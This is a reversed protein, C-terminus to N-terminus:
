SPTHHAPTASPIAAASIWRGISSRGITRCVAVTGAPEPVYQGCGCDPDPGSRAQHPQRRELIEIDALDGTARPVGHAAMAHAGVVLFRAEARVLAALLDLFDPNLTEPRNRNAPVACPHRTGADPRQHIRAPWPRGLDLRRHGAAVDNALREEPTTRDRLDDGPEDGLRFM